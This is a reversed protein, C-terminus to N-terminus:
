RMNTHKAFLQKTQIKAVAHILLKGAMLVMLMMYFLDFLCDILLLFKCTFYGWLGNGKGGMTLLDTGFDIELPESRFLSRLYGSSDQHGFGILDIFSYITHTDYALNGGAPMCKHLSDLQLYFMKLEEIQSLEELSMDLLTKNQSYAYVWETEAHDVPSLLGGLVATLYFNNM